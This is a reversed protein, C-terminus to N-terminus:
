ESAVNVFLVPKGAFCSFEVRRGSLATAEFEHLQM